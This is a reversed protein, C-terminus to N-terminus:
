AYNMRLICRKSMSMYGLNRPYCIYTNMSEPARCVTYAMNRLNEDANFISIRDLSVESNEFLFTIRMQKIRVINLAM